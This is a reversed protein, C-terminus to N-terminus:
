TPSSGSRSSAPARAAPRRAIGTPSNAVSASSGARRAAGKSYARHGIRREVEKAIAEADVFSLERARQVGGELSLDVLRLEEELVGTLVRDHELFPDHLTAVSVDLLAHPDACLAAFALAVGVGVLDRHLAELQGGGRGAGDGLLRRRAAFGHHLRSTAGAMVEVRDGDRGGVDRRLALDLQEALDVRVGAGLVRADLLDHRAADRLVPLHHHDAAVAAERGVRARQHADVDLDDGFVILPTTLDAVLAHAAAGLEVRDHRRLAPLTEDVFGDTDGGRFRSASGQGAPEM